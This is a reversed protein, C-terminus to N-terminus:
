ELEDYFESWSDPGYPSRKTLAGEVPESLYHPKFIRKYEIWPRHKSVVPDSEYLRELTVDDLAVLELDFFTLYEGDAQSLVREAEALKAKIVADTVNKSQLLFLYGMAKSKLMEMEACATIAEGLKHSLKGKFRAHFLEAMKVLGAIDNDLRPDNTGAYLFTLDWQATEAGTKHNEATDIQAM